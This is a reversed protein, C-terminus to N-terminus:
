ETESMERFNRVMEPLIDLLADVDEQTNFRGLSFRISSQSEEQNLKIAELVPSVEESDESCASGTSVCIGETALGLLLAEAELGPFSYNLTTKIRHNEHGNFKIDPIKEEIGNKLKEALSELRKKDKSLHSVALRAAEGFGIIGPTNETGARIRGEQHGGYILPLIPTGKKIYLVGVGKPGYIKHASVSLLDVDLKKVDLPIKGFTQVADTHILVDNKRAIEIIEKLPQITGIENNAHMVSILATKPTVADRLSDLDIVGTEDVPVITVQYGKRKLYDATEIVAPHEVSSTIVHNKDPLADMVGRLAFNDSETGSGTFIIESRKAGIAEAISERAEQIMEKVERGIPYLSSPNGFHNEIFWSMKKIVGPDLPTTANNDIYIM